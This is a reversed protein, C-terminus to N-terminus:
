YETIITELDKSEISKLNENVYEILENAFDEFYKDYMVINGRDSTESFKNLLAIVDDHKIIQSILSHLPDVILM